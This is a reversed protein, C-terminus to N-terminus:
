PQPANADYLRGVLKGYIPAPDYTRMEAYVKQM